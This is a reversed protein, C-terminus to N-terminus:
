RVKWVGQLAVLTAHQVREIKWWPDSRPVVSWYDEMGQHPQKHSEEDGGELALLPVGPLTDDETFKSGMRLTVTAPM